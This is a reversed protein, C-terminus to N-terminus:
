RKPKVQEEEPSHLLTKRFKGVTSRSHGYSVVRYVARAVNGGGVNCVITGNSAAFGKTHQELWEHNEIVTEIRCRAPIRIGMNGLEKRPSKLFALYEQPTCEWFHVHFPEDRIIKSRASLDVVKSPM